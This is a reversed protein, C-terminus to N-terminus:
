LNQKDILDSVISIAAETGYYLFLDIEDDSINKLTKRLLEFYFDQSNDQRVMFKPLSLYFQLSYPAQSLQEYVTTFFHDLSQKKQFIFEQPDFSSQSDNLGAPGRKSPKSQEAYDSNSVADM